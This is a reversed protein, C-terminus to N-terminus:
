FAIVADPNATDTIRVATVAVKTNTCNLTLSGAEKVRRAEKIACAKRKYEKEARGTANFKFLVDAEVIYM